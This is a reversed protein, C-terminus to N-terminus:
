VRHLTPSGPSLIVDARGDGDLDIGIRSARLAERFRRHHFRAKIWLASAHEAGASATSYIRWLAGLTELQAMADRSLVSDSSLGAPSGNAGAPEIGMMRLLSAHVDELQPLFTRVIAQQDSGDGPPIAPDTARPRLLSLTLTHADM